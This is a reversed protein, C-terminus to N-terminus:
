IKDNLEKIDSELLSWYKNITKKSVDSNKIVKYKTIVIGDNHIKLITECISEVKTSSIYDNYSIYGSAEINYKDIIDSMQRLCKRATSESVGSLKSVDAATIFPHESEILAQVSSSINDYMLINHAHAIVARKYKYRLDNDIDRYEKKLIVRKSEFVSIKDETNLINEIATDISSNLLNSFSFFGNHNFLSSDINSRYAMVVYECYKKIKESLEDMPISSNLYVLKQTARYCARRLKPMNTGESFSIVGSCSYYPEIFYTGYEHEIINEQSYDVGKIDYYTLGLQKLKEVM